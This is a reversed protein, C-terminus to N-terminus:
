APEVQASVHLLDPTDVVSVIELYLRDGASMSANGFTRYANGEPPTNDTTKDAAFVQTLAGTHPGIHLNWTASTTGDLQDFVARIACAKEVPGLIPIMPETGDPLVISAGAPRISSLEHTGLVDGDGDVGQTTRITDNEFATFGSDDMSLTVGLNQLKLEAYPGKATLIVEFNGAADSEVTFDFRDTFDSGLANIAATIAAEDDDWNIANSTDTTGDHNWELLIEGATADIAYFRWVEDVGELGHTHTEAAHADIDETTAAPVGNVKVGGGFTGRLDLDARAHGQRTAVITPDHSADANTIGISSNASPQGRNLAVIPSADQDVFTPNTKAAEFEDAHADEDAIHAALNSAVTGADSSAILDTLLWKHPALVAFSAGSYPESLVVSPAGSIPDDVPSSITVKNDSEDVKYVDLLTGLLHHTEAPLSFTEPGASADVFVMTRGALQFRRVSM